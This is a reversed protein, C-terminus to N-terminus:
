VFLIVRVYTGLEFWRATNDESGLEEEYNCFMTRECWDAVPEAMVDWPGVIKTNDLDPLPDFKYRPWDKENEDPLGCEVQDEVLMWFPIYSDFTNCNSFYPLYPLLMHTFDFLYTEEYTTGHFTEFYADMMEKSEGLTSAPQDWFGTGADIQSKEPIIVPIDDRVSANYMILARGKEYDQYVPPMNLAQSISLTDEKLYVPCFFYRMEVYREEFSIYPTLRRTTTNHAGRYTKSRSPQLLRVISTNRFLPQYPSYLGNLVFVEVKFILDDLAYVTLNNKVNKPVSTDKWWHPYEKSKRCPMFEVPSLRIASASCLEVKCRSPLVSLSLSFHQDYVLDPPLHSWDLHVHAVDNSQLAFWGEERPREGEESYKPLSCFSKEMELILNNSYFHEPRVYTYVAFTADQTYSKHNRYIKAEEDDLQVTSKVFMGGMDEGGSYHEGDNTIEVAVEASMCPNFFYGPEPNNTCVGEFEEGVTCPIVLEIFYEKGISPLNGCILPDYCDRVYSFNGSAANQALALDGESDIYKCEYLTLASDLTDHYDDEFIFEPVYCEMRSDSIVNGKTVYSSSSM